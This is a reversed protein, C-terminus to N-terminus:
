IVQTLFPNIVVNLYSTTAYQTYIFFFLVIKIKIVTYTFNFNNNNIYIIKNKLVNNNVFPNCVFCEVKM